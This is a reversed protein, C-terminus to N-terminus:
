QQTDVLKTSNKSLVLFDKLFTNRTTNEKIKIARNVVYPQGLHYVTNKMRTLGVYLLNSNLMYTHAKPTILIVIPCSGGQSKHISMAYALQIFRLNESKYLVDKDDYAVVMENDLIKKIVGTEGNYVACQNNKSPKVGEIYQIASYDNKIQMVIDGVYYNTKGCHLSEGYDVEPNAIRQLMQNIIVTGYKGKNYSSLVMIDSPDWTKLLKKYLGALSISIDKDEVNIFVYDENLGFKTMTDKINSLYPKSYRVDTAVKMLGGEGYRFVKTLTTCPIIESEILDHLCNGAQVSSLQSSDGVILLKTKKFDIADVLHGFLFIDVMSFEDVIVVDETLKNDENFKWNPSEAPNFGLGRHITSAPRNAYEGLVKGARGTPALLIYTKGLDDLMRIVANMTQSKGTGAQGELISINYKCFNELAQLQEDSLILGDCERYDNKDVSYKSEVGLGKVVSESIRREVRRSKDLSVFREDYYVSEDKLANVFHISCEFVETKCRKKLTDFQMKTNGDKENEELVYKIFARCRQISTRLNEVPKIINQEALDLIVKDATKFGIRPIDTLCDYPHKNLAEKLQEVSVFRKHLSQLRNLTFIGHFMDILEAYIYNDEIKERIKKWTVDGVGKIKKLDLDALDNYIVKDVINPYAEYLNKAQNYTLIGQLFKYMDTSSEPKSLIKMHLVNYSYGYQNHFNEVAEIMYNHYLALSPMNGKIVVGGKSGPKVNPYKKEDVDCRYMKFDETDKFCYEPSAEFTIIKSEIKSSMKDMCRMHQCRLNLNM